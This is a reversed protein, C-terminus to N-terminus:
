AHIALARNRARLAAHAADLTDLEAHGHRVDWQASFVTECLPLLEARASPPLTGAAIDADVQAAAITNLESLYTARNPTPNKM